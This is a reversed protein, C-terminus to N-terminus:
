FELSDSTHKSKVEMALAAISQHSMLIEVKGTDPSQVQETMLAEASQHETIVENMEILKPQRTNGTPTV